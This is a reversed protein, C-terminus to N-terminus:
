GLLSLVRQIAGVLQPLHGTVTAGLGVGAATGTAKGAARAFEDAFGDAKRGFWEFASRLVSRPPHEVKVLEAVMLALADGVRRTEVDLPLTEKAQEWALVFVEVGIRVQDRTAADAWAAVLPDAAEGRLLSRVADEAASQTSFGQAGDTAVVTPERSHPDERVIRFAWKGDARRYVEGRAPRYGGDGPGAATTSVVTWPLEAGLVAPRHEIAREDRPRSRDSAGDVLAELV